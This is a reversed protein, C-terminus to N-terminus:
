GVRSEGVRIKEGVLIDFETQDDLVVTIWDINTRTIMLEYEGITLSQGLTRKIKM